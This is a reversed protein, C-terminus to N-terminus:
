PSERLWVSALESAHLDILKRIIASKSAKWHKKRRLELVAEDLLNLHEAYFGVPVFKPSEGESPIVSESDQANRSKHTKKDPPCPPERAAPSEEPGFIDLNLKRSM